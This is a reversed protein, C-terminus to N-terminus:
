AKPFKVWKAGLKSSKVVTEIFAMGYVGDDITPFDLDKPQKKGTVEAEIARFAELYINAAATLTFTTQGSATSDAAWMLGAVIALLFQRCLRFRAALLPRLFNM